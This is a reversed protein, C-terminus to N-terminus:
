FANKMVPAQYTGDVRNLNVWYSISFPSNASLNVSSSQTITIHDGGDFNLCSGNVCNESTSWTPCTAAGPCTGNLNGNNAFGSKDYAIDGGGEDFGIDLVPQQKGSNMEMMIERQTLARDFVKVEDLKGNISTTYSM